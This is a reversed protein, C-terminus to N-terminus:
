FNKLEELVNNFLEDRVEKEDEKTEFFIGEAYTTIEATINTIYKKFNFEGYNNLIDYGFKWSYEYRPDILGGTSIPALIKKGTEKFFNQLTEKKSNNIKVNTNKVIDDLETVFSYVENQIVLLDKRLERSNIIDIKNKLVTAALRMWWNFFRNVNYNLIYQSDDADKDQIGLKVRFKKLEDIFDKLRTKIVMDHFFLMAEPLVEKSKFLGLKVYEQYKNKFREIGEYYETRNFNPQGYIPVDQEVIEKKIAWEALTEYGKRFETSSVMFGLSKDFDQGFEKAIIPQVFLVNKYTKQQSMDYMPLKAGDSTQEKLTYTVDKQSLEVFRTMYIRTMVGISELYEAVMIAPIHRIAFQIDGDLYENGLINYYFLSYIEVYKVKGKNRKHTLYVKKNKTAFKLKAGEVGDEIAAKGKQQIICDFIEGKDEYFFVKKDNEVKQQILNSPVVGSPLGFEKFKDPYENALKQSFYEPVRYMGMSALSFDFIGTPKDTTILKSKETKGGLNLKFSASTFLSEIKKFSKQNYDNVYDNVDFYPNQEKMARYFQEWDDITWCLIPYNEFRNQYAM